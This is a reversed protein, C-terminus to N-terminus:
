LNITINLDAELHLERLTNLQKIDSRDDKRANSKLTKYHANGTIVLNDLLNLIYM